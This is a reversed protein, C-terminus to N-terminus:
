LIYAFFYTSIYSHPITNYDGSQSRLQPFFFLMSTLRMVCIWQHRKDNNILSICYTFTFFTYFFFFFFLQYLKSPRSSAKFMISFEGPPPLPNFSLPPWSDWSGFESFSAYWQAHYCYVYTKINVYECKNVHIWSGSNSGTLYDRYWIDTIHM